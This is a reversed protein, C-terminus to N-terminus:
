DNVRTVSIIASEASLDDFRVKVARSSILVARAPIEVRNTDASFSIAASFCVILANVGLYSDDRVIFAITYYFRTNLLPKSM